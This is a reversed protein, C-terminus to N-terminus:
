LDSWTIDGLVAIQGTTHTVNATPSILNHDNEGAANSIAENIRTLLITGGPEAERKILDALEATVADKVAQTSPEIAISLNLPVATPAVVYVEATVPRHQSLIYDEVAELVQSGPILGGPADDTVIRVTVSNASMEQGSVWVRTVAPHADKAWKVYDSEHGGKSPSKLEDLVRVRLADITEVDSGGAIGPALVTVTSLVGAVPQTFTLTAGTDLNGAVGRDVATVKITAVGATVTADADVSYLVGSASRLQRGAPIVSGNTGTAQAPGTAAIPALRTIGKLNAWRLVSAEDGTDPLFNKEKTEIYGYLAHAVGGIARALVRTLAVRAPVSSGLRSTLDQEVREIIEKLAPRQTAM